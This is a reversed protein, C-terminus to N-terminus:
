PKVHGLLQIATEGARLGPQISISVRRMARRSDIPLPRSQQGPALAEQLQARELGGDAFEIEIGLLMTALSGSRIRIASAHAQHPAIRFDLNATHNNTRATGLVELSQTRAPETCLILLALPVLLLRANQLM